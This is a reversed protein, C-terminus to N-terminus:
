TERWCKRPMEEVFWMIRVHQENTVSRLQFHLVPSANATVSPSTSLNTPFNGWWNTHHFIGHYETNLHGAYLM